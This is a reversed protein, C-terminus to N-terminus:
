FAGNCYAGVSECFISRQGVFSNWDLCRLGLSQCLSALDLLIGEGALVVETDAFKNDADEQDRERQHHQPLILSLKDDVRADHVLAACIAFCDLCVVSIFGVLKLKYMHRARCCVRRVHCIFVEADDGMVAVAELAFNLHVLPALDALLLTVILCLVAVLQAPALFGDVGVVEMLQLTM